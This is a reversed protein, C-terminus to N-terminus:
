VAVREAETPVRLKWTQPRFKRPILFWLEGNSLEEFYPISGDLMYRKYSCIWEPPCTLVQWSPFAENRVSSIFENEVVSDHEASYKITGDKQVSHRIGSESLRAILMKNLRDDLFRFCSMDGM